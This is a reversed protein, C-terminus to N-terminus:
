AANKRKCFGHKHGNGSGHCESNDQSNGQSTGDELSASFDSEYLRIMDCLQRMSLERCDEATITKDYQSLILFAKYKGVSLGSHHAQEMLQENAGHCQANAQAYGHCQQIGALLAEQKDSVVTFSLLADPTLYGSFTKDALLLEIAQTYKKHQLKLGQLITAGDDNFAEMRVVRDLRNLGLEVSPNVDVSIYSVPTAYLRYGGMACLMLVLAACCVFVRRLPMRRVRPQTAQTQASLADHVFACANRKMQDTARISAFAERFQDHM